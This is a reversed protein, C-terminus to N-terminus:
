KKNTWLGHINCLERAEPMECGASKCCCEAIPFFAEPKDGPKLYARCLRNATRLEIMQIYHEDTMPHPTSGVTVKFGGEVKEVVPVHKETKFDATKPTLKEMVKDCCSLGCETDCCCPEMVDVVATCGEVTCKFIDARNFSM